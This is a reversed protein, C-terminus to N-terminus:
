WDRQVVISTNSPIQFELLVEVGDKQFKQQGEALGPDGPDTQQFGLRRLRLGIQDFARWYDAPEWGQGMEPDPTGLEFTTSVSTVDTEDYASTSSGEGRVRMTAGTPAGVDDLILTRNAAWMDTQDQKSLDGVSYPSSVIHFVSTCTTALLLWLLAPIGILVLPHAARKAPPSAPARWSTTAAGVEGQFGSHKM